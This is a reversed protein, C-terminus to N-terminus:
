KKSTDNPLLTSMKDMAKELVFEWQLINLIEKFYVPISHNHLCNNPQSKVLLKCPPNICIVSKWGGGGVVLQLEPGTTDSGKLQSDM